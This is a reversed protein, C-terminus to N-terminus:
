GDLQKILKLIKRELQQKQLFEKATKKQRECKDCTKSYLGDSRVRFNWWKVKFKGCKDCKHRDHNEPHITGNALGEALEKEKRRHYCTPCQWGTQYYNNCKKCFRIGM